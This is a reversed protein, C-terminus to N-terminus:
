HGTPLCRLVCHRRVAYSTLKSDCKTYLEGEPLVREAFALLATMLRDPRLAKVVLLKLFPTKELERWQLPLKEQEPM